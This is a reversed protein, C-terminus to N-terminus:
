VFITQKLCLVIIEIQEFLSSGVKFLSPLPFKVVADFVKERIVYPVCLFDSVLKCKHM